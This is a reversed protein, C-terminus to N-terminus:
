RGSILLQQCLTDGYCSSPNCGGGGRFNSEGRLPTVGQFDEKGSGGGGKEGGGGRFFRKETRGGDRIENYINALPISANQFPVIYSFYVKEQVWLCDAM